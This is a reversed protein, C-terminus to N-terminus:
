PSIFAFKFHIDWVSDALEKYNEIEVYADYMEYDLTLINALLM